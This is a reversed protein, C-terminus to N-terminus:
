LAFLADRTCDLILTSIIMVLIRDRKLDYESEKKEQVKNQQAQQVDSLRNWFNNTM